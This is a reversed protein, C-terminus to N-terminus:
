DSVDIFVERSLFCVVDLLNIYEQLFTCNLLLDKFSQILKQNTINKQASIQDIIVKSIQTNVTINDSYNFTSLIKIIDYILSKSYETKALAQVMEDITNLLKYDHQNTLNFKHRITRLEGSRKILSLAFANKKTESELEKLNEKDIEKAYHEMNEATILVEKLPQMLHAIAIGASFTLGTKEYFAKHLTQLGKFLKHIPFFALVDEGGAYVCIGNCDKEIICKAQRAFDSIKKSLETHTDKDDIEQYKTGMSDGDFKVCAYYSSLTVKNKQIDKYIRSAIMKDKEPYEDKPPNENYLDYIANAIYTPDTTHSYDEDDVINNYYSELLMNRLSKIEKRDGKDILFARKFLAIASLAEKDKIIYKLKQNDTVDIYGKLNLTNTHKPHNDKKDKKIVIANYEPFLTCKRGWQEDSQLFPRISKVSQMGKFVANYATHYSGKENDQYEHFIWHVELFDSLQKAGIALQEKDTIGVSTFVTEYMSMFSDKVWKTLDEAKQKYIHLNDVNVDKIIAIFRNPINSGLNDNKDIVPFVVEVGMDIVKDIAKKTLESLIRSGGRLDIMKRSNDIFAKVPGITFAFMVNM